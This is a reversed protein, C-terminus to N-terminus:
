ADLYHLMSVTSIMTALQEWVEPVTGLIPAKDGHGWLLVLKDGFVFIIQSLVQPIM